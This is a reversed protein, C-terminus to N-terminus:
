INKKALKNKLEIFDIPKPIFEAAGLQRASLQYEEMDYASVVYVMADPYQLKVKQLLELGSMGPMNIDTLMVFDSDGTQGLMAMAEDGSFAFQFNLEGAGIAKKFHQRYILELDREDDVVLIKKM